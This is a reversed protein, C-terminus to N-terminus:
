PFSYIASTHHASRMLLFVIVGISMNSLFICHLILFCILVCL